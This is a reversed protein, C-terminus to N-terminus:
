EQGRLTVIMLTFVPILTNLIASNTSTTYRLGVLFSGQNIIIGLLSYVVLPGFFRRGRPSPRGSSLAIGFMIATSIIIRISAWVLPPFHDVVIKSTVYNIGFLVQILILTNLVNLPMKTQSM